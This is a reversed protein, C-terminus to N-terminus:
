RVHPQIIRLYDSQSLHLSYGKGFGGKEETNSAILELDEKFDAHEKELKEYKIKLELYDSKPVSDDQSNSPSSSLGYTSPTETVQEKPEKKKIAFPHADDDKKHSQEQRLKFNPSEFQQTQLFEAVLEIAANSREMLPNLKDKEMKRFFSVIRNDGKTILAKIEATDTDKPSYGTTKFYQMSLLLFESHKMNYKKALDALIARTGERAKLVELKAM